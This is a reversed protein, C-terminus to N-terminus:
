PCIYVPLGIVPLFAQAVELSRDLRRTTSCDGWDTVVSYGITIVSLRSADENLRFNDVEAPDNKLFYIITGNDLLYMISPAKIFVLCLTIFM